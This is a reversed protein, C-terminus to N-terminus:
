PASCGITGSRCTPKYADPTPLPSSVTLTRSSRRTPSPGPLRNNLAPLDLVCAYVDRGGQRFRHAPIRLDQCDAM